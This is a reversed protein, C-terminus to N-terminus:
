NFVFRQPDHAIDGVRSFSIQPHNDECRLTFPPPMVTGRMALSGVVSPLAPQVPVGTHRKQSRGRRVSWIKLPYSWQNLDGELSVRAMM